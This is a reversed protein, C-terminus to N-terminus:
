KSSVSKIQSEILTTLYTSLDGYTDSVWTKLEDSMLSQCKELALSLAEKKANDDWTGASKMKDTYTQAVENVVNSVISALDTIHKKVKENKVYKNALWTVLACLVTGLIGAISELVTALISTWNIAEEM